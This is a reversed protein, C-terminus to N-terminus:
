KLRASYVRGGKLSIKLAVKNNELTIFDNEGSAAGSFAGFQKNDSKSVATKGPLNESASVKVIASDTKAKATNIRLIQDIANLKLMVAPQNPNFRLADMYEARAKEYDGTKYLSDAFVIKKEFVKHSRNTQFISFGIFILFILIIGTITNRDM